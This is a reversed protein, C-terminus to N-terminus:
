LSVFFSIIPPPPAAFVFHFFFIFCCCSERESIYYWWGKGKERAEYSVTIALHNNGDTRRRDKGPLVDDLPGRPNYQVVAIPKGRLSADRAREVAGTLPLIFCDARSEVAAQLQDDNERLLCVYCESM